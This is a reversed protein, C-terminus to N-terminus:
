EWDPRPWRKSCKTKLPPLIFKDYKRKLGFDYGHPYILRFFKEVWDRKWFKAQSHNGYRCINKKFHLSIELKLFFKTLEVWQYDFPGSFAVTRYRNTPAISGDGDFFGKWFFIHLEDKIVSLVKTPECESKESFDNEGLFVCLQKNRCYFATTEYGNKKKFLRHRMPAVSLFLDKLKEGDESKLEMSLGFRKAERRLHGDAWIYGLLYIFKPNILSETLNFGSEYDFSDKRKLGMKSARAIVTFDKRNLVTAIEAISLKRYNERLFQNEQETYKM